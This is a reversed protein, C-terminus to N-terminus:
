QVWAAVCGKVILKPHYSPKPSRSHYHACWDSPSRTFVTTTILFEPEPSSLRCGLLSGLSAAVAATHVVSPTASSSKVPPGDSEVARSQRCPLRLKQVNTLADATMHLRLSFVSYNLPCPLNKSSIGSVWWRDRSINSTLFFCPSINVCHYTAICTKHVSWGCSKLSEWTYSQRCTIEEQGNIVSPKSGM